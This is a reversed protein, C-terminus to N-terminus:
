AATRAPPRRTRPPRAPTPASPHASRQPSPLGPTRVWDQGLGSGDSPTDAAALVPRRGLTRWLPCEPLIQVAPWGRQATRAVSVQDSRAHPPRHASGAPRVRCASVSEPSHWSWPQALQKYGPHVRREATGASSPGPSPSRAPWASAGEGAQRRWSAHAPRATSCLPWGTRASHPRGARRAWRTTCCWGTAMRPLNGGPATALLGPDHGLIQQYLAQAPPSPAVGLDDDLRRRLQHYAALADAQRGVAYRARMLRIVAQERTPFRRALQEAGTVAEARRGLQLLTDVREEAAALRLEGLRTAEAAAFDLDAFEALADGRWRNLALDLLGLAQRHDGAAIAVRAATIDREFEAADLEDDAVTLLYGPSQHRLRDDAAGLATRLRSVYARLANVAGRPPRGAWVAEVLRDDSVVTGRHVLLMALVARPKPGGLNVTGGDTEVVLPGLIHCRM